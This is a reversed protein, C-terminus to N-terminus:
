LHGHGLCRLLARTAAGCIRARELVPLDTYRACPAEVAVPIADPLARTFARRPLEGEGPYFRGGRGEVRLM